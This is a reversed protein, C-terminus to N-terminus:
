YNGFQVCGSGDVVLDSEQCEDVTDYDRRGRQWLSDLDSILEYTLRWGSRM